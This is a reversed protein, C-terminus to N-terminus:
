RIYCIVYFVNEKVLSFIKTVSFNFNLYYVPPFHLKSFFFSVDKGTCFVGWTAGRELLDFVHDQWYFNLCDSWVSFLLVIFGLLVSWGWFESLLGSITNWQFKTFKTSSFGFLVCIHSTPFVFLCVSFCSSSWFSTSAQPCQEGFGLTKRHPLDSWIIGWCGQLAKSGEGSAAARHFFLFSTRSCIPWCGSEFPLWKTLNVWVQILELLFIFLMPLAVLGMKCVCKM